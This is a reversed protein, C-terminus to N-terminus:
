RRSKPESEDSMTGHPGIQQRLYVSNSKQLAGSISAYRYELSLNESCFSWCLGMFHSLRSLLMTVKPFSVSLFWYVVMGFVIFILSLLVAATLMGILLGGLLRSM